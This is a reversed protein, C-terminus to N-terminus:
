GKFKHLVSGVQFLILCVGFDLKLGIVLWFISRLDICVEFFHVFYSSKISFSLFTSPYFVTVDVKLTEKELFLKFIQFCFSFILEWSHILHVQVFNQLFHYLLGRILKLVLLYNSHKDVIPKM